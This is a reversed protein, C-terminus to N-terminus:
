ALKLANFRKRYNIRDLLRGSVSVHCMVSCDSNKRARRLDIIQFTRALKFCRGIPSANDDKPVAFTLLKLVIVMDKSLVRMCKHANFASTSHEHVNFASTRSRRVIFASAHALHVPVAHLSCALTILFNGLCTCTHANLQLSARSYWIHYLINHCIDGLLACESVIFILLFMCASYLALKPKCKRLSIPQTYVTYFTKVLCYQCSNCAYM